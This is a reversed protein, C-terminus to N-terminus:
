RATPEDNRDHCSAPTSTEFPLQALRDTQTRGMRVARWAVAIFISAAVAFACITCIAESNGTLLRQFM